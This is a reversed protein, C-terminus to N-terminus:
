RKEHEAGLVLHAGSNIGEEGGFYVRSSEDRAKVLHNAAEYSAVEDDAGRHGNRGCKHQQTHAHFTGYGDSDGATEQVQQWEESQDKRKRQRKCRCDQLEVSGSWIDDDSEDDEQQM